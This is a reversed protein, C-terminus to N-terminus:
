LTNGTVPVATIASPIYRSEVIPGVVVWSLAEAYM